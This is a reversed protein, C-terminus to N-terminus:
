TLTRDLIQAFSLAQGIEPRSAFMKPLVDNTEVAYVRQGDPHAWLARFPRGLVVLVTGELLERLQAQSAKPPIKLTIVRGPGLERAIRSSKGPMQPPDLFALFSPKKAAQAKSAIGLPNSLDDQPGAGRRAPTKPDVPSTPKIDPPRIWPASEDPRPNKSRAGYHDILVAYSIKGGYPREGIPVEKGKGKRARSLEEEERDVEHRLRRAADNQGYKKAIEAAETDGKKTCIEELLPAIKASAIETPGDLSGLQDLRIDDYSLGCLNLAYELEWQTHFRIDHNFAFAQYPNQPTVLLYREAEARPPLPVWRDTQVDPVTTFKPIPSTSRSKKAERPLKSIM